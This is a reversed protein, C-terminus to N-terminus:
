PQRHGPNALKQLQASIKLRSQEAAGPNIEFRVKDGDIVFTIMGGAAAFRPSEGVTLVQAQRLAAAMAALHPEEGACVFLLDMSGVAAPGAIFKIAIERGNVRRSRTIKDLEDGFPNRGLVGIVLARDAPLFHEPPWEVFKTFHYLFAAKVQYERPVTEEAAPAVPGGLLLAFVGALVPRVGRARRRPSYRGPECAIKKAPFM